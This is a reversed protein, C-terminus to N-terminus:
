RDTIGTIRFADDYGYTKLGASAFQSLKGDTDYVRTTTTANGWTWGTIPGFPQQRRKSVLRAWSCDSTRIPIIEALQRRM